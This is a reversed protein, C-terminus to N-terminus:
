NTLIKEADAPSVGDHIVAKLARVMKAPDQAGWVNRGATMGHGGAEVVAAAQEEDAVIRNYLAGHPKLYRVRDGAVRAFGDLAGLQYLVDNVLEDAAVDMTRRGFGALDRYGVQAAIAVGRRVAHECVRRLISPDGAHFGCAM